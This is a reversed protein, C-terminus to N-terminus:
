LLVEKSTDINLKPKYNEYYFTIEKDENTLCYKIAIKDSDAMIPVKRKRHIEGCHRIAKKFDEISLNSKVRNCVECAPYYNDLSDEGGEGMHAIHHDVKMESLSLECGCYACHGNYKAYVNGRTLKSINKRPLPHNDLWKQADKLPIADIYLGNKYFKIYANHKDILDWENTKDGYDDKVVVCSLKFIFAKSIDRTINGNADILYGVNDVYDGPCGTLKKAVFKKATLVFEVNKEIITRTPEKYENIKKSAVIRENM